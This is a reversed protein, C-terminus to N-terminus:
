ATLIQSLKESDISGGSLICVSLGRETEPASLAAALSLAGSGEVVLKNNLALRRIAEKVADDSITIVDDIVSRLIPYMEDVIIPVATGECITPQSEIWGGKRRDFSAKLAPCNATQAAIVRIDASLLKLASGVGAILGGGGVPIYVNKVNPLAEVIELGLSGHGALLHPDGWPN